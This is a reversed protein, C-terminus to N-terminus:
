WGGAGAGHNGLRGILQHHRMFLHTKKEYSEGKKILQEPL